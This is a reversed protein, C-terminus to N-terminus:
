LKGGIKLVNYSHIWDTVHHHKERISDTLSNEGALNKTNLEAGNSASVLSMVAHLQGFSAAWGTAQSNFWHPVGVTPKWCPVWQSCFLVVDLCPTCGWMSFFHQPCFVVTGTGLCLATCTVQACVQGPKPGGNVHTRRDFIDKPDTDIAPDVSALYQMTHTANERIADDLARNKAANRMQTDAGLAVLLKVVHLQNFSSAWQVPTSAYWDGGMSKNVDQGDRTVLLLVEKEDGKM